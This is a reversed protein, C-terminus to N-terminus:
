IIYTLQFGKIIVKLRLYIDHFFCFEFPFHDAILTHDQEVSDPPQVAATCYGMDQFQQMFGM